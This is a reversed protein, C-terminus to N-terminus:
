AAREDAAKLLAMAAEPGSLIEVLRVQDALDLGADAATVASAAQRLLADYSAGGGIARAEAELERLQRAVTELRAAAADDSAKELRQLPTLFESALGHAFQARCSADLRARITKLRQRREPAAAVDLERLLTVFRRAEGAAEALSAVALPSEDGSGGDMRQLLVEMAQDGAAQLVRETRPGLRSAITPLMATVQPLRALLLALMTPLADECQAVVGQLMACVPELRPPVIGSDAEAMMEHLTPLQALVAGIRRAMPPYVIENLGTDSWGVPKPAQTLVDAARPWLQAGADTIAALDHMGRGAILMEIDDAAAGLAARVTAAMAQLVSRPITPLGPRWRPAAVILPELPSFLLRTFRLPRVPRIRALRPRISAVLDDATGRQPMADVVAVVRALQAEPANALERNLARIDAGSARAPKHAM